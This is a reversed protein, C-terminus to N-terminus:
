AVYNRPYPVNAPVDLNIGATVTGVTLAVSPNYTLRMYRYLTNSFAPKARVLFPTRQSLLGLDIGPFEELTDWNTGDQSIQVAVDMTADSPAAITATPASTYGTGGATVKISTVEGDTLVATAEAGTGGGGTLTVAPAESYGSGASSVAVATVAGDAVTVAGAAAPEGAPMPLTGCEAFVKFPGTPGFDRNQSFDIINTSPTATGAALATLDQANSFLLLGDIIM